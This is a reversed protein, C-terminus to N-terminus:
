REVNALGIRKRVAEFRPDGRLVAFQPDVDTLRTYSSGEAVARELWSLAGNRDGLALCLKAVWDGIVYRKRADDELMARYRRAEDTRGLRVLAMGAGMYSM